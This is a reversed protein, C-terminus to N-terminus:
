TNCTQFALILKSKKPLQQQIVGPLCSPLFLRQEKNFSFPDETTSMVVQNPPMSLLPDYNRRAVHWWPAILVQTLAPSWPLKQPLPIHSATTDEQRHLPAGKWTALVRIKLKWSCWKSVSCSFCPFSFNYQAVATCFLKCFLLIVNQSASQSNWSPFYLWFTSPTSESVLKSFAQIRCPPALRWQWRRLGPKLVWM